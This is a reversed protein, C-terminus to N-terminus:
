KNARTKLRVEGDEVSVVFVVESCSKQQKMDRLKTAVLQEFRLPDIPADNGIRERARCFAQFLVDISDHDAESAIPVEVRRASEPQQRIGYTPKKGQELMRLNRQWLDNYVSFRTALSNLRFRQAYTLLQVNFLRKVEFDLEEHMKQPFQESGGNFFIDYELKLKNISEELRDLLQDNRKM